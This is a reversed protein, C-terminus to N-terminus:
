VLFFESIKNTDYQIYNKKINKTNKLFKFIKQDRTLLFYKM